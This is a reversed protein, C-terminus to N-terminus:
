RELKRKWVAYMEAEKREDLCVEVEPALGQSKLVSVIWDNVEDRDAQTERAAEVLLAGNRLKRIAPGWNVRLAGDGLKRVTCRMGSRTVYSRGVLSSIDAPKGM